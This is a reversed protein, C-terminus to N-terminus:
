SSIENFKPRQEGFKAGHCLLPFRSRFGVRASPPPLDLGLSQGWLAGEIEQGAM